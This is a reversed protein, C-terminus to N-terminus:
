HKSGWNTQQGLIFSTESSDSNSEDTPEEGEILLGRCKNIIMMMDKNLPLNENNLEIGRQLHEISRSFDDRILCRLGDVFTRLYHDDPLRDLRGWTELAAEAEGSTLQFLGLQFRAIDFDPAIEVARSLSEHAEILRREGILISGKLFHLRPDEPQAELAQSLLELARAPNTNTAEILKAIQEDSTLQSM